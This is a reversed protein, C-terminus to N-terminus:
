FFLGEWPHSSRKINNNTVRVPERIKGLKLKYKTLSNLKSIFTKEIVQM